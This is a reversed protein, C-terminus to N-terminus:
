AAFASESLPHPTIRLAGFTMDNIASQAAHLAPAVTGGGRIGDGPRGGWWGGDGCDDGPVTGASKGFGRFSLFTQLTTAVSWPSLRTQM